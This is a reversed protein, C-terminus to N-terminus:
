KILVMKKTETFNETELKYFYVGSNLGSGDLNVEYEGSYLNEYVLNKVEKGITNFVTLKVFGSKPIAFRINTNPNFPNPYNQSLSFRDPIQSSINKIDITVNYTVKLKYIGRYFYGLIVGREPAILSNLSFSGSVYNVPSFSLGNNTSFSSQVDLKGYHIVTPDEECVDLAWPASTLTNPLWENGLNTSKNLKGSLISAYLTNKEFQSCSLFPIESTAFKKSIIWHIGGNTSKLVSGSDNLAYTANGIFIVNTDPMALVDCPINWQQTSIQVFSAGNNTSKYFGVADNAYYYTGPTKVDEELPNAFEGITLSDKVVAWTAGYDTTRLIKDFPVSQIASLWVNTDARSVFFNNSFTGNPPLPISPPYTSILSWNDGKNRSVYINNEFGVFFTNPNFPHKCLGNGHSNQSLQGLKNEWVTTVSVTGTNDWSTGGNTTRIICDNLSSVAWGNNTNFYFIDVLNQLEPNIEFNTFGANGNKNNRIFGGGGCVHVDNISTGSVGRIDTIIKSNITTLTSSKSLLTGYEGVVVYGGSFYKTKLLNKSTGSTISQWSNGGNSTELVTGMNGVCVGNADDKFSISNLGQSTSFQQAWNIGGNVSKYIKGDASCSYGTSSNVFFVGNMQGSNGLNYPVLDLPSVLSTFINGSSGAVWIRNGFSSVSKFNSVTSTSIFWRSGENSSYIIKGADGVAIVFNGDPSTISQLGQSYSNLSFVFSCIVVLSLPFIFQFKNKM